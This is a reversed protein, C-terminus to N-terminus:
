MQAGHELRVEIRPDDQARDAVVSALNAVENEDFGIVRCADVVLQRAFFQQALPQQLQQGIVFLTTKKVPIDAQELGSLAQVELVESILVVLQALHTM